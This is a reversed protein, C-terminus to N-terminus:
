KTEDNPIFGTLESVDILETEVFILVQKSTSRAGIIRATDSLIVIDSEILQVVDQNLNGSELAESYSDFRDLM